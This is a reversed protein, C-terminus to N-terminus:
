FPVTGVRASQGSADGGRRKGGYISKGNITFLTQPRTLMKKEDEFRDGIQEEPMSPWSNHNLVAPNGHSVRSPGSM